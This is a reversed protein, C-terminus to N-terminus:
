QKIAQVTVEEKSRYIPIMQGPTTNNKCHNMSIWKGEYVAGVYVGPHRDQFHLQDALRVVSKNSPHSKMGPPIPCKYSM